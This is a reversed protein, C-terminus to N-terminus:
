MYRPHRYRGQKKIKGHMLTLTTSNLGQTVNTAVKFTAAFPSAAAGLLGKGMGVFFGGVGGKKAYKVPQKVIGTIGIIKSYFRVVELKM